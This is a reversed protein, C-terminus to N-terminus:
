NINRNRIKVAPIGQYIAYEELNRNVVSGVTSIAGENFIIGSCVISRAGVWAGKKIMIEGIMLDFTEKKYNHNGCLLMAGQSICVNDEIVVDALNDIWVSEGIWVNSGVFLRWPYKINVSPKICVNKGIKAGFLRLLFVKLSSFPNLPCQIFVVNVIFWLTRKVLGAGPDYWSNDYKSLNTKM